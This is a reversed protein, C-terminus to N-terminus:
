EIRLKISECDSPVEEDAGYIAVGKNGDKTTFGYPDWNLKDCAYFVSSSGNLTLYGDKVLTVDKLAGYDEVGTTFEGTLQNFLEGFVVQYQNDAYEKYIFDATSNYDYTTPSDAILVGNLGAGFHLDTIGKGSLDTNSSEVVVKKTDAALAVALTALVSFM